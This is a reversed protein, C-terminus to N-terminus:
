GALTRHIFYRPRFGPPSHATEGLEFGFRRYFPVASDRATAWLVRVGRLRLDQLIWEILSSGVGCRQLGPEVAMFMLRVAPIIRANAPFPAPYLSAAGIVSGEATQAGVYRAGPIDDFDHHWCRLILGDASVRQRLDYTAEEAIPCIEFWPVEHPM